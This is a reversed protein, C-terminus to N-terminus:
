RAIGHQRLFFKAEALNTFARHVNGSYGIVQDAADRWSAYIGPQRGIAVAYYRQARGIPIVDPEMRVVGPPRVRMVPEMKPVRAVEREVAPRQVEEPWANERVDPRVVVEEERWRHHIRVLVNIM